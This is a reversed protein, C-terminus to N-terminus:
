EGQEAGDVHGSILWKLADTIILLGSQLCYILVNFSAWDLAVVPLEILPFSSQTM